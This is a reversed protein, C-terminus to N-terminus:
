RLQVPNIIDTPCCVTASAGTAAQIAALQAATLGQTSGAAAAQAALQAALQDATQDNLAALAAAYNAANLISSRTPVGLKRFIELNRGEDITARIAEGYVDNTTLKRIFDEYGLQATDDYVTHLENTWNLVSGVTGQIDNLNIKAAALNTKEQVLKNGVATFNQQAQALNSNVVDPHDPNNLIAAVQNIEAAAASQISSSTPNAIALSLAAQLRQGTATTSLQSQSSIMDVIRSTFGIGAAVGIVDSIKPNGFIGQGTGTLATNATFLNQWQTRDLNATDVLTTIPQVVKGIENGIEGLTQAVPNDGLVNPLKNVLEAAPGFIVEPNKVIDPLKFSEGISVEIGSLGAEVINGIKKAESIVIEIGSKDIIQQTVQSSLNNLATGILKDNDAVIDKINDIGVKELENLIETGFGNAVSGLALGANTLSQSLNQPNLLTGANSLNTAFERFQQNLPGVAATLGNTAIDRLSTFNFGLDGAPLNLNKCQDLLGTTIFSSECFSKVSSMVDCVGPIGGQFISQAQTLCSNVLNSPNSGLATLSSGLQGSAIGSVCGPLNSLASQVAPGCTSLATQCAGSLGTSNFAGCCSSFETPISMGAGGCCGATCCAQLPSQFSCTM